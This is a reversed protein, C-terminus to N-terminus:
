QMTVSNNNTRELEKKRHCIVKATSSGNTNYIYFFFDHTDEPSLLFPVDVSASDYLTEKGHYNKCKTWEIFLSLKRLLPFIIVIARTNEEREKTITGYTTLCGSNEASM